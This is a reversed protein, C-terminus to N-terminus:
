YVRLTGPKYAIELNSKTYESKLQYMKNRLTEDRGLFPDKGPCYCKDLYMIAGSAQLVFLSILVFLSLGISSITAADLVLSFNFM